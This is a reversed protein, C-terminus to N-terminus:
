VVVNQCLTKLFFFTSLKDPVLTDYWISVSAADISQNM